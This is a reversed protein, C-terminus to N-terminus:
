RDSLSSISLTLSFFIVLTSKFNDFNPYYKIKSAKREFNLHTVKEYNVKRHCRGILSTFFNFFLM